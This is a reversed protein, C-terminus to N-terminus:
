SNSILTKSKNVLYIEDCNFLNALPSKRNFNPLLSSSSLSQSTSMSTSKSNNLLSIGNSENLKTHVLLIPIDFTQLVDASFESPSFGFYELLFLYKVFLFTRYLKQQSRYRIVEYLWEKLNDYSQRSSLDSVLIIGLFINSYFGIKEKQDINLGNFDDYFMSSRSTKHQANGDVDHFEIFFLNPDLHRDKREYVKLLFFCAIM